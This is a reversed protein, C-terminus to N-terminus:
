QLTVSAGCLLECGTTSEGLLGLLGFLVSRRISMTPTNLASANREKEMVDARIRYLAIRPVFGFWRVM